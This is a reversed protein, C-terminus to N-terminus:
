RSVPKRLVSLTLKVRGVTASTGAPPLNLYVANASNQITSTGGLYVRLRAGAPISTVEDALHITVERPPRAGADLGAGGDAVLMETGDRRVATLVAVLWPLTSSRLSVRVSAAGFTELHPLRRTETRVVKGTSALRASGGLTFALSRTAPVARSAATKSSWPDPAIEVAPRTDIGNPTGKLWRDLWALVETQVYSWEAPPNEAPAHGLDGLYLRKPVRLARFARLAQDADFAFDRRGQIMFVPVHIQDLSATVSRSALYARVAALNRRALADLLLQKEEAPIRSQDVDQSFGYILGSRGLDQPALASRLDTWTAAPVITAFPVGGAASMWINAGGYSVGFAGVHKADIEPHAVLWAFLEKTDQLERPGDLTFLGGSQGHARADFTLVAYGNPALLTEAVGNWSINGLETSNRTQGLGHFIMVAPWGTPPAPGTPEFFTAAIPVGDSMTITLDTKTFGGALAPSSWALAAVLGCAFLFIPRRV